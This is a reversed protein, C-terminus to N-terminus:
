YVLVKGPPNKLAAALSRYEESQTGGLVGIRNLHYQAQDRNGQEIQWLGYYQWTKIHNPDARLAREYWIRSSQYDNLKRYAYGILNAVDAHDDHGLAKLQEIAGAYDNRDYVAAYATRYGDPLIPRDVSSNQEGPKKKDPTTKEDPPPAPPETSAAKAPVHLPVAVAAISMIALVLLRIAIKNM